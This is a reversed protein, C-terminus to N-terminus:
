FTLILETMNVDRVNDDSNGNSKPGSFFPKLTGGFGTIFEAITDNASKEFLVSKVSM